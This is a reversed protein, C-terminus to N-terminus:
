LHVLELEIYLAFISFAVFSNHLALLLNHAIALDVFTCCNVIYGLLNLSLIVGTRIRSDFVAFFWLAGVVLSKGRAVTWCM